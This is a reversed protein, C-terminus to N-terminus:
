LEDLDTIVHNALDNLNSRQSRDDAFRNVLNTNASVMEAGFFNGSKVM